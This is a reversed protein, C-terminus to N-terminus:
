RCERELTVRGDEWLGQLEGDLIYFTELRRRLSRMQMALSM